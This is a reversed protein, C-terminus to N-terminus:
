IRAPVAAKCIVFYFASRSHLSLEQARPSHGLELSQKISAVLSSRLAADTRSRLGEPTTDIVLLRGVDEKQTAPAPSKAETAQQQAAFNFSAGTEPQRDNGALSGRFARGGFVQEELATLAEPIDPGPLLAEM